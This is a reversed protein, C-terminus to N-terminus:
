KKAEEEKMKALKEEARAILEAQSKEFSIQHLALKGADTLKLEDNLYGAEVLTHITPHLLKRALKSLSM